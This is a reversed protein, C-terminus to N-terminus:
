FSRAGAVLRDVEDRTEVLTELLRDIQAEDHTAMVSMRLLQLGDPVVPSVAPNVYVGSDLLRRWMMYTRTDDGIIVPIIPTTEGLTRFGVDVLGSRLYNALAELREVREPETRLINLAAHAAAVDGPPLAASFVMSRANHQLFEIADTDGAVFGGVSALSKSFTGVVLDIEHQLGFHFGTGRGGGVSGIGHADDVILRGGHRRAVDVLGPLDAIEGEMSYVGDVVIVLGYDPDLSEIKRELDAMDQHKFRITRRAYSLRAGDIISAHVSGDLLLVTHRGPIASIAGLNAQM